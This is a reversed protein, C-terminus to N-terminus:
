FLAAWGIKGLVILAWCIGVGWIASGTSKRSAVGFGVALLFVTWISFLDLSNLLSMLPKAATSPDLLLGPSAQLAQNPDINWDGKLAMVALTLPSTILGVALFVWSTIALAQRFTSESAYFFRYVLHLVAAVVLLMLPSFVAVNIWGWTALRAAQQEIIEAKQEAPIRDAFPGEEIQTRMFAKADVKQVWTGFFALGLVIVLIAPVVFGSNRVIRTFADRPAFYVDILTQFFGGPPEPTVPAPSAAQPSLSDSM